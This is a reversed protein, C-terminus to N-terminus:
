TMSGPLTHRQLGKMVQANFQTHIRNGPFHRKVIQILNRQGADKMPVLIMKHNKVLYTVPMGTEPYRIRTFPFVPTIDLFHFLMPYGCLTIANLFPNGHEKFRVIPEAAYPLPLRLSTGETEHHPIQPLILPIEKLYETTQQQATQQLQYHGEERLRDHIYTDPM